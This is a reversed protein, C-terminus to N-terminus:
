SENPLSSKQPPWSRRWSAIRPSFCPPTPGPRVGFFASSSPSLTSTPFSGLIRESDIWSPATLRSFGSVVMASNRAWETTPTLPIKSSSFSTLTPIVQAKQWEVTSSEKM